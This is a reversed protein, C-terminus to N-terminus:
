VRDQERTTWYWRLRGYSAIHQHLHGESNECELVEGTMQNITFRSPCPTDSM